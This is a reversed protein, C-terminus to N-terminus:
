SRASSSTRRSSRSTTGAARHRPRRPDVRLGGAALGVHQQQVFTQVATLFAAVTVGALISRAADQAAAPPAASRTRASWARAVAGVFAALPVLDDAAGRRAGYAIALTAGLGAGAAVGLLYPDALPNRFVGQYSAGALALMGGVLLASCSARRASSGSSRRTRRRRAALARRPVAPPRPRRAAIAGSASTARARRARGVLLAGAVVVRRGVLAWSLTVRPARRPPGPESAFPTRESRARAAGAGRRRAHVDVIRPGWRSAIDDDVRRRRRNQVAAITSWGPRAAVTAASQGCCKTDALM